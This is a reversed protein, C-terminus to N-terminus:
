EILQVNIDVDSAIAAQRIDATVLTTQYHLAQAIFLSDYVPIKHAIGIRLAPELYIRDPELNIIKGDIIMEMAEFRKWTDAENAGFLSAHKWLVNTTETILMGVGNLDSEPTLMQKVVEWRPERLLFHAFASSDIVTM